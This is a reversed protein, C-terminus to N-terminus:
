HRDSSTPKVRLLLSALVTIVVAVFSIALFVALELGNGLLIRAETVWTWTSTEIAKSVRGALSDATVVVLAFGAAWRGARITRFEEAIKGNQQLSEVEHALEQLRARINWRRSIADSLPQLGALKTELPQDLSARIRILEANLGTCFRQHTLWTRIRTLSALEKLQEEARMAVETQMTDLRGALRSLSRVMGRAEKIRAASRRGADLLFVGGDTLAALGQGFPVLDVDELDPADLMSRVPSVGYTRAGMVRVATPFLGSLPVPSSPNPLPEDRSWCASLISKGGTGGAAKVDPLRKVAHDELDTVPVLEFPDYIRFLTDLVADLELQSPLLGQAKADDDDLTVAHPAAVLSHDPDIYWTQHYKQEDEPLGFLVRSESTRPPRHIGKRAWAATEMHDLERWLDLLHVDARADVSVTVWNGPDVEKVGPRVIVLVTFGRGLPANKRDNRAFVKLAGSFESEATVIADVLRRRGSENMPLSLQHVQQAFLKREYRAREEELAARARVLHPRNADVPINSPDWGARLAEAAFGIAMQWAHRFPGERGESTKRDGLVTHSLAAALAPWSLEPNDVVGTKEWDSIVPLWRDRVADPLPVQALRAALILIGTVSDPSADEVKWSCGQVLDGLSGFGALHPGTLPLDPSLVMAIVSSQRAGLM